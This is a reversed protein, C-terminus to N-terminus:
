NPACRSAAMLEGGRDDRPDSGGPGLGPMTRTITVSKGISKLLLNNPSLPDYDFNREELARGLDTAVASEPLLTEVVGEFSLTVPGEPLDVTRTETILAFLDRYITVSVADAQPSIVEVPDAQAAHAGALM